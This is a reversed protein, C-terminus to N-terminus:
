NGGLANGTGWSHGPPRAPQAGAQPGGFAPPAGFQPAPFFNLLFQPTKLLRIGSTQPYIEDLFYYLHGVIIGSIEILPYGGMLVNFAVLVWPFYFARFKLGFMFSMQINPNKRSWYYIIMMILAMGLIRFGMFFAVILLSFIGFFIFFIYDATRGFFTTQELASGYRYLFLMHMLFPFGLKGQYLFATVIRWLEFGRYIAPFDLFLLMPPILGFNAALTLGFAGAFLWKTVPPIEAWWQEM